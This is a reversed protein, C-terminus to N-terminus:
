LYEERACGERSAEALRGKWAQGSDASLSGYMNGSAAGSLDSSIAEPLHSPATPLTHVSGLCECSFVQAVLSAPLHPQSSTNWPLTM